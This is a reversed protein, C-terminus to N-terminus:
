IFNHLILKQSYIKGKNIILSHLKIILIKGEYTDETKSILM